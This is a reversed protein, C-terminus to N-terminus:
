PPLEETKCHYDGKGDRRYSGRKPNDNIYTPRLVEDARPVRVLLIRQGDLVEVAMDSDLLLNTSVKQENNPGSWLDKLMADPNSIGTPIPYGDPGEAAGLVILGGDTNTFSSYPEWFSRPLTSTARKFELRNNERYRQLTQIDM